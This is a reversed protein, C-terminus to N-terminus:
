AASPLALPTTNACSAQVREKIVPPLYLLFSLFRPFGHRFLGNVSSTDDEEFGEQFVFRSCHTRTGSKGTDSFYGM